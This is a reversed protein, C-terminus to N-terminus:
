GKFVIETRITFSYEAEFDNDKQYSIRPVLELFLYDSHVLRRYRMQLLYDTAFITPESIGFVGAQYIIAKKPSLRHTLSFIEGMEWFETEEEWRASTKARFLLDENLKHDFELSSRFGYGSSTFNYLTNRLYAHWNESLQYDRNARFRIFLELSSNLKLGISSRLKWDRFEDWFGEVGAFYSKDEAAELPTDEPSNGIDEREETPDSQFVLKWKRKTNPLDIKAKSSGGFGLEGGESFVIDATLRIFSKNSEYEVKEDSFFEDVGKIFSDFGSSILQQPGDLLSIISEDESVPRNPETDVPVPSLISEIQIAAPHIDAPSYRSTITDQAQLLPTYSSLVFFIFRYIPHHNIILMWQYFQCLIM